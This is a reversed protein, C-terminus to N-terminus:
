IFYIQRDGKKNEIITSLNINKTIRHKLDKKMALFSRYAEQHYEALPNRQAVIRNTVVQRLQELNDVENVWCDDIAKLVVLRYFRQQEAQDLFQEEKKAVEKQAVRKLYAIVAEKSHLNVKTLDGAFQYTLNDLIYRHVTAVTPEEENVFRRFEDGMIQSFDLSVEEGKLLANRAEYVLKRQIQVSTDMELSQRRQIKGQEDSLNQAETLATLFHHGTLHGDEPVLSPRKQVKKVYDRLWKAGFKIAVDDELSVFFQSTGPDGQRGARGQLQQDIRKSPMKETGIVALGGLEAVGPGLKIDTGRGAMTTAVTVRGRQGAEKIIAAEKAVDKANLVSHPIQERLLLESYLESIDVNATILLIPRGQQHLKKVLELSAMLKDPLSVFLQDPLDKRIMPKNTPIQVVKMSYTEIFEEEAVKGTGTMGSLLQFQRFLNQYTISAIARTDPTLELQEKMEIAQHQGAQLKMGELIRGNARDLLAVEGDPTVVYDKDKELLQHAKLALNVSRILETHQGDYADHLSFFDELHDIGKATLWVNEEEEDMRYDQDKILTYIFEDSVGILNSSVQPSGSIVLPITAVDLLVADAEDIIACYFPRMYKKKQEPALNDLLYDFGLASNTTYIIDAQYIAKKEEPKLDDDYGCGIAVTEGLWHYVQGMEEGDRTALYDNPTILMAGKQTLGYVYLPMTATLTKGEGTKMEAVQGHFLVLAGMVQVDFPFMGLVRRDAERVTAFAEVVIDVLTAGNALQKRFKVTQNQLEQDSLAEMQPALRNIKNVMRKLRRLERGNM